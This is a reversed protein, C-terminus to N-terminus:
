HSTVAENAATTNQGWMPKLRLLDADFRAAVRQRENPNQVSQLMNARDADFAAQTPYRALLLKDIRKQEADRQREQAVKQNRADEVAQEIPTLTRPVVRRV